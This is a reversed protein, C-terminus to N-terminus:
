VNTFAHFNISEAVLDERKVLFQCLVFFLLHALCASIHNSFNSLHARQLLLCRIHLFQVKLEELVGGGLNYSTCSKLIDTWKNCFEFVYSSNVLAYSVEEKVGSFLCSALVDAEVCGKVEECKNVHVLSFIPWTETFHVL